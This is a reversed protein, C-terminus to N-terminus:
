VTAPCCLNGPYQKQQVGQEGESAICGARSPRRGLAIQSIGPVSNQFGGAYARWFRCAVASVISFKDRLNAEPMSKILEMFRDATEELNHQQSRLAEPAALTTLGTPIEM